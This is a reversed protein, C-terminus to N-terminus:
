LQRIFAQVDRMDFQGDGNFDFARDADAPAGRLALEYLVQADDMDVVGDGNVDEYLGDDDPDAPFVTRENFESGVSLGGSFPVQKTASRLIDVHGDGRYVESSYEEPLQGEPGFYTDTSQINYEVPIQEATNRIHQRVQQPAVDPNQSYVLAAQGAVQPASFSTGLILTFGLDLIGTQSAVQVADNFAGTGLGSNLLNGGAASVDLSNAGFSTYTAPLHTEADLGGNVRNPNDSLDIIINFADQEPVFGLPGTAAVSFFGPVQTPLSTGDATDLNVGENGASSVIMAGAENAADAVREYSEILLDTDVTPSPFPLPTGLSLNIVDADEQISNEIGTLIDGFGAGQTSGFVNQGIITAEPAVGLVYLDGTGAAVSAVETGHNQNESAPLGDQSPGAITASRTRDINPALDDVSAVGDDIISITAGDGTIGQNHVSPIDQDVQKDWQHSSPSGVGGATFEREIQDEDVDADADVELREPPSTQIEFDQFSRLGTLDEEAARVIALDFLPLERIVEGSSEWQSGSVSATDIIYRGDIPSAGTARGGLATIGAAGALGALVSRRTFNGSDSM